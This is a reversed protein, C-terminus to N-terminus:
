ILELCLYAINSGYLLESFLPLVALITVMVVYTQKTYIISVTPFLHQLLTHTSQYAFHSPFGFQLQTLFNTKIGFHCQM